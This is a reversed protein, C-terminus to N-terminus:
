VHKYCFLIVTPVLFTITAESNCPNMEVQINNLDFSHLNKNKLANKLEELPAATTLNDFRSLLEQSHCRVAPKNARDVSPLDSSSSIFQAKNQRFGQM